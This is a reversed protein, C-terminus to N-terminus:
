ATANSTPSRATTPPWARSAASRPSSSWARASLTACSRTIAIGKRFAKEDVGICPIPAAVKRARGRAVARSMVGWAEDWTVRAIRCAGTVTSCQQILDIILREMLMTFRSRAEAWPVRVQRVGHTPCDVRPVRVHLFTQYQCTDLHRWVREGTTDLAVRGIHWPAQIGLITEFLKTDQM